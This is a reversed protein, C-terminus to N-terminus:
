FTTYDIIKIDSNRLEEYRDEILFTPYEVIEVSFNRGVWESACEFMITKNKFGHIFSEKGVRRILIYKYKEAM